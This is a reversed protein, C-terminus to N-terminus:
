HRRSSRSWDLVRTLPVGLLLLTNRSSCIPGPGQWNQSQGRFHASAGSLRIVEALYSSRTKREASQRAQVVM